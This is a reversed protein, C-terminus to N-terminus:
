VQALRVLQWNQWSGNAPTIASLKWLEDSWRLGDKTTYQYQLLYEADSRKEAVKWGSQCIIVEGQYGADKHFHVDSIEAKGDEILSYWPYAYARPPPTPLPEKGNLIRSLLSSHTMDAWMQDPDDHNCICLQCGVRGGDYPKLVHGWERMTKRWLKIADFVKFLEEPWNKM